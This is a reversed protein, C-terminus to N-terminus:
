GRKQLDIIRPSSVKSEEVKSEEVKNGIHDSVDGDKDIYMQDLEGSKLEAATLGGVNDYGIVLQSQIDRAPVLTTKAQVSIDSTKRNENSVFTVTLVLKRPKKGETNPDAINEIVRQMEINFREALAGDAFTNLDIIQNSM